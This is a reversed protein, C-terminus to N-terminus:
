PTTRPAKNQRSWPMKKLVELFDIFERQQLSRFIGDERARIFTRGDPILCNMADAISAHEHGCSYLGDDKIFCTVYTIGAM